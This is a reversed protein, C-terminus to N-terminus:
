NPDTNLMVDAQATGKIVDMDKALDIWFQLDEHAVDVGMSPIPITMALTEPFRLYEVQFKRAEQENDKMWQMAEAIAAKFEEPASPNRKIFDGTMTYFSELYRPAVEATYASVLYGADTQLINGLFPEVPLAADLQGSRLLDPMQPFFAEVFRVKRVDVDRDGLWKMFSVHQIGNIGPVGVRKGEFDKPEKIGAGNKAVVGATINNKDQYSAGAVIRLDIGGEQAVLLATPTLTGVQLSDGALAGAITSGIPVLRLTVDLDNKEFFGLEKAVFAPLFANAGTYGLVIKTSAYAQSMMMAACLLFFKFLKLHRM